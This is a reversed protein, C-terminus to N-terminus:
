FRVREMVGIATTPESKFWYVVIPYTEDSCNKWMSPKPMLYGVFFSIGNGKYEKVVMDLEYSM